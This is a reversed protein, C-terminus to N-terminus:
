KLPGIKRSEAKSSNIYAFFSKPDRKAKLAINLEFEEKKKRALNKFNRRIIDFHDKSISDGNMKYERFSKQKATHLTKLERCFWSVNKKTGVNKCRFPVWKDIQAQLKSKFEEWMENIDTSELGTSFIIKVSKRLKDFNAERFIPVRRGKEKLKCSFVVKFNVSNHDSAGIPDRVEVSKVINPDSSFVLDLTSNNRTPELVHQTLFLDQVLDLFEQDKGWAILKKWDIKPYNFDGM